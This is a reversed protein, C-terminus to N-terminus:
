QQCEGTRVQRQRAASVAGRQQGGTEGQGPHEGGALGGAGAAWASFLSFINDTFISLFM